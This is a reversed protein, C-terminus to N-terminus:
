EKNMLDIKELHMLSSKKNMVFQDDYGIAILKSVLLGNVIKPRADIISIDESNFSKEIEDIDNEMNLQKLKDIHLSTAKPSFLYELGEMENAILARGLSTIRVIMVGNNEHSNGIVLGGYTGNVMLGEKLFEDVYKKKIFIGNDEQSVNLTLEGLYIIGVRSM